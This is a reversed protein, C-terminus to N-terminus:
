RNRVESSRSRTEPSTEFKVSTLAVDSYHQSTLSLHTSMVNGAAGELLDM